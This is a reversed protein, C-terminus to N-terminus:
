RALRAAAVEAGALVPEPDRELELWQIPANGGLYKKPGRLWSAITYPTAVVGDFISINREIDPYVTGTKNFQYAPYVVDGERTPLALLRRM